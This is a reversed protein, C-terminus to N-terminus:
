SDEEGPEFLGLQSPDAEPGSVGRPRLQGDETIYNIALRDYALKDMTALRGLVLETLRWSPVTRAGDDVLQAEISRALRKLDDDSITPRDRCVRRLMGLLKDFSFAQREGGRKLVKLSPESLREYTTFRRRCAPCERRRRVGEASGRSDIVNSESECYPCKM